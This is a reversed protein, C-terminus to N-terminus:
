YNARQKRVRYQVISLQDSRLSKKDRAEFDKKSEQLANANSQNVQKKRM